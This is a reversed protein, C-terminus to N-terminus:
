PEHHDPLDLRAQHAAKSQQSLYENEAVLSVIMLFTSSNTLEGNQGLCYVIVFIIAPMLSSIKPASLSRRIITLLIIVYIILGIIGHEIMLLLTGNHPNLGHGLDRYLFGGIGIGFLQEGINMALFADFANAASEARWDMADLSKANYNNGLHKNLVAVPEDVLRNTISDIFDSDLHIYDQLTTFLLLGFFLAGVLMMGAKYVKQARGGKLERSMLIMSIVVIAMLSSRSTSMLVGMFMVPMLLLIMGNARNNLFDNLLYVFCMGCIMGYFNHNIIELVKGTEDRELEVKLLMQYIRQVPFEGISAYTYALDAFAIVGSILLAIKLYQGNNGNKFFYFYGCYISIFTLSITKIYQIDLLDFFTTVMAAYLLFFLILQVYRNYFFANRSQSTDILTRAFLAIGIAARVNMHNIDAILMTFFLIAILQPRTFLAYTFLSGGILLIIIMVMM